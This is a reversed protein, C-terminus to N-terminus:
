VQKMFINSYKKDDFFYYNDANEFDNYDCNMSIRISEIRKLEIIDYELKDELIKCWKLILKPNIFNSM